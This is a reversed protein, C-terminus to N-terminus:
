SKKKLLILQSSYLWINNHIKRKGKRVALNTYHNAHQGRTGYTSPELGPRTLGFIIFQYISEELATSLPNSGFWPSYLQYIYISEELATSRPNSGFWPSYLPYISSRCQASLMLSHYPYSLILFINGLPAIIRGHFTTYMKIINFMLGYLKLNNKTVRGRKIRLLPEKQYSDM